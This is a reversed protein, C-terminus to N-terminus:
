KWKFLTDIISKLAGLSVAASFLGLPIVIMWGIITWIM